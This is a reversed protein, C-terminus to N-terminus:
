AVASQRTAASVSNPLKRDSRPSSQKIQRQLPREPTVVFVNALHELSPLGTNPQNMAQSGPAGNSRSVPLRLQCLFFSRVPKQSRNAENNAVIGVRQLASPISIAVSLRPWASLIAM